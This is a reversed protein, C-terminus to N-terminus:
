ASDATSSPEVDELFPNSKFDVKSLFDEILQDSQVFDLDISPDLIERPVPPGDPNREEWPCYKVLRQLVKEQWEMFQSPNELIHLAIKAAFAGEPEASGDESVNWADTIALLVLDIAGRIPGKWESEELEELQVDENGMVLVWCSELFDYATRDSFYNSLRYVVWEACGIAFATVGRNSVKSLLALTDEDPEGVLEEPDLDSWEHHVDAQAIMDVPIYKPICLSM